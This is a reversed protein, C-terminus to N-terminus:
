SARTRGSVYLVFPSAMCVAHVNFTEFMIQTMRERHTKPIVPAETLLVPHEEVTTGLIQIGGQAPPVTAM